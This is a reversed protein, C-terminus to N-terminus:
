TREKRDTAAAAAASSSSPVLPLQQTDDMQRRFPEVTRLLFTPLHHQCFDDFKWDDQSLDLETEPNTWVYTFASVVHITQSPLIPLLPSSLPPDLCASNNNSTMTAPPISTTTTPTTSQIQVSVQRREYEEGEFLDLIHLERLTLDPLLIGKVSANARPVIGPFTHHRVPFRAYDSLIADSIMSPIRGLLTSLVMPSMLSGYVFLFPTTSAAATSSSSLLSSPLMTTTTSFFFSFGWKKPRSVHEDHQRPFSDM